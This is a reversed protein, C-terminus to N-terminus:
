PFSNGQPFHWLACSGAQCAAGTARQEPLASRQAPASHQARRLTQVKATVKKECGVPVFAAACGARPMWCSFYGWCMTTDQSAAPDQNSKMNGATDQLWEQTPTNSIGPCHQWPYVQYDLLLFLGCTCCINEQRKSACCHTEDSSFLSPAISM